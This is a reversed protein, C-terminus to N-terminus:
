KIEMKHRRDLIKFYIAAGTLTAFFVVYIIFALGDIRMAEEASLDDNALMKHKLALSLAYIFFIFAGFSLSFIM